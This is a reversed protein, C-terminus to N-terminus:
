RAGAGAQKQATDPRLWVQAPSANCARAVVKAGAKPPRGQVQLCQGAKNALRGQEDHSWIQANGTGCKDLRGRVLCQGNHAVLRDQDDTKWRQSGAESNCKRVTLTGSADLCLDEGFRYRRAGEAEAVIKHGEKQMKKLAEPNFQAAAPNAGGAICLAAVLAYRQKM